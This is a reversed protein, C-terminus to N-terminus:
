VPLGRAEGGARPETALGLLRRAAAETAGVRERPRSGYLSAASLLVSEGLEPAGWLEAAIAAAQDRGHRSVHSSECPQSADGSADVPATAAAIVAPVATAAAPSSPSLPTGLFRQPLHSADSAPQTAVPAAPLNSPTHAAHASGDPVAPSAPSASSPPRQPSHARSIATAALAAVRMPALTTTSPSPTMAAIQQSRRLLAEYSDNLARPTTQLAGCASSYPWV